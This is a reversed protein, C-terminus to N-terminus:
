RCSDVAEKIIGAMEDIPAVIDAAKQDIVAKPMSFIVSSHEDQVMTLGGKEKLRFMGKAGDKGMGTLIIGILQDGYHSVASELMVNISPRVHEVPPDQNLSIVRKERLCMHHGGPALYVKGPEIHDGDAAEKVCLHSVSDLRKAFTKTFGAPMHQTILIPVTFDEELQSILSELAKPGGTSSGIGILSPRRKKKVSASVSKQPQLGEKGPGQKKRAANAAAVIKEKLEAKISGLDSPSSPKAVFDVAGMSLATLTIESGSQTHSSLMIVPRNNEKMVIKLVELGNLRPMEVDLTIVDPKFDRIKALADKGDRATGIVQIVEDGSLMDNIVQRMFASDDAILVRIKGM